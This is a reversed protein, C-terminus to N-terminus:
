GVTIPSGHFNPEEECKPCYPVEEYHCRGSGSLPFPGDHIPHAVRVVKIESNCDICRFGEESIRYVKDSGRRRHYEVGETDKATELVFSAWPSERAFKQWQESVSFELNEKAM